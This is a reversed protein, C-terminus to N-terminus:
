MPQNTIQRIRQDLIEPESCKKHCYYLIIKNKEEISWVYIDKDDIEHLCVYCTKNKLDIRSNKQSDDFKEPEIESLEFLTTAYKSGAITKNEPM